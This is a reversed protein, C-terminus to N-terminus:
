GLLDDVTTNVGMAEERAQEELMLNLLITTLAPSFRRPLTESKAMVWEYAKQPLTVTIQRSEPTREKTSGRPRAYKRWVENQQEETWTFPLENQVHDM